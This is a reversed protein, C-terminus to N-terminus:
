RDSASTNITGNKATGALSSAFRFAATAQYQDRLVIPLSRCRGSWTRGKGLLNIMAPPNRFLVKVFADVLVILVFAPVCVLVTLPPVRLPPKVFGRLFHNQSVTIRSLAPPVRSPVFPFETRDRKEDRKPARSIQQAGESSLGRRM